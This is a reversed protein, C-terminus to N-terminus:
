VFSDLFKKFRSASYGGLADGVEFIFLLFYIAVLILIFIKSNFNTFFRITFYSAAVILIKSGLSYSVSKLVRNQDGRAGWARFLYSVEMIVVATALSILFLMGDVEMLMSLIFYISTGAVAAVALGLLHFNNNM